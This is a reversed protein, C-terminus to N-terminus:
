SPLVAPLGLGDYLLAFDLHKEVLAIGHDTKKKDELSLTVVAAEVRKAVTFTDSKVVMVPVGKAEARASITENPYLSGTLVLCSAGYEIAVLQIETRDGGVIVASEPNRIMYTIFRDVQMGGVLFNQVLANLGAAGCVVDADLCHALDRVGISRLLTDRPVVGFVELGKRQLFPSVIREIEIAHSNEAKNFVVGMMPKGIVRKLELLFDISFDGEYTGVFLAHANLLTILESGSLGFSSGESFNNDCSVVVIDKGESIRSYAKTIKEELGTVDREYNRKMLDETIVVPCILEIPDALDFLQHMFWAGKDTVTNGVQYPVHGLPKFFGFNFGDRKLRSILGMTVLDKGTYREFSTIYLAAM